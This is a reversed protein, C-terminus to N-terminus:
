HKFSLLVTLIGWGLQLTVLFRRTISYLATWSVM